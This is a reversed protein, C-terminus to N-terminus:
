TIWSEEQSFSTTTPFYILFKIWFDWYSSYCLFKSCPRKRLRQELRSYLLFFNQLAQPGGTPRAVESPCLLKFSIVKNLDNFLHLCWCMSVHSVCLLPFPSAWSHWDLSVTHCRSATCKLRSACATKIAKLWQQLGKPHEKLALQLLGKEWCSHLMVNWGPVFTCDLCPYSM